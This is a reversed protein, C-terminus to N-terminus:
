GRDSPAPRAAPASRRRRFPLYVLGFHLLAALELGILHYPFRGCVFPSAVATPECLFMYNAQLLWNALVVVPLVLQTWLFARWWSGPRPRMGLVVTAWLAALLIGGHAVFYEVAVFRMAAASLDPTLLSHFTGPIGWYYLLEYLGQRRWLLVCGSVLASIRCMQLPLNSAAQWTGSYLLVSQAVVVRAILLAGLVLTVREVDRDSARRGLGLLAVTIAVVPANGLWWQRGFMPILEAM